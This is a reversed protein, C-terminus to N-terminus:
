MEISLSMSVKEPRHDTAFFFFNFDLSLIVEGEKEGEVVENLM